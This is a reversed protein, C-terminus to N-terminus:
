LRATFALHGFWTNDAEVKVGARHFDWERRFTHGATLTLSRKDDFRWRAGPGVGWTSYDVLAHNLSTRGFKTGFNEEVRFGGGEAFLGVYATLAENIRYEVRPAPFLLNLTWAPAFQWRVGAIPLVPHEGFGDLRVGAFWILERSSIHMVGFVGSLNFTESCVSTLDSFSGLAARGLLSTKSSLRHSFGLNLTAAGLWEPLPTAAPKDLQHTEIAFGISYGTSESWAGRALASVHHSTSPLDGGIAALSADVTSAREGPRLPAMGDFSQAGASIASFMGTLLTLSRVLRRAAQCSVHTKM